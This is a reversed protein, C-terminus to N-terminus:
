QVTLELSHYKGLIPMLRVQRPLCSMEPEKHDKMPISYLLSHGQSSKGHGLLRHPTNERVFQALFTGEKSAPMIIETKGSVVLAMAVLFLSIPPEDIVGGGPITQRVRCSISFPGLIEM